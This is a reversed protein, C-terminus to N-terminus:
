WFQKWVVVAHSSVVRCRAEGRSTVVSSLVSFRCCRRPPVDLLCVEDSSLAFGIAANAASSFCCTQKNKNNTQKNKLNTNSQNLLTKEDRCELAVVQRRDIFCDVFL